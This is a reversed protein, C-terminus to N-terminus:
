QDIGHNHEPLLIKVNVTEFIYTYALVTKLMLYM